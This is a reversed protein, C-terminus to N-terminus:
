FNHLNCYLMWLRNLFFIKDMSPVLTHKLYLSKNHDSQLLFITLQYYQEYKIALLTVWNLLLFILLSEEMPLLELRVFIENFSHSGNIKWTVTTVASLKSVSITTENGSSFVWFLVTGIRPESLLPRNFTSSCPSFHLDLGLKSFSSFIDNWNKSVVLFSIQPLKKGKWWKSIKKYLM